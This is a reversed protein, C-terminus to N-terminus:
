PAVSMEVDVEGPALGDLQEPLATARFAMRVFVDDAADVELAWEAGDDAEQVRVACPRPVCLSIGNDFTLRVLHDATGRELAVSKIAVSPVCTVPMGHVIGHVTMLWAHHARSFRDLFSQWDCVPVDRITM